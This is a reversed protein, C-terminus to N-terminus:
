EGAQSEKIMRRYLSEQIGRLSIRRSTTPLVKQVQLDDMDVGGLFDKTQARESIEALTPHSQAQATSVMTMTLALVFFGARFVTGALLRLM